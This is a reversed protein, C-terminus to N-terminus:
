YIISFIRNSGGFHLRMTRLFFKSFDKIMIYLKKNTSVLDGSLKANNVDLDYKILVNEISIGLKNSLLLRKLNNKEKKFLYEVM